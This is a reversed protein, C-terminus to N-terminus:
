SGGAGAGPASTTPIPDTTALAIRAVPVLTVGTEKAKAPNTQDLGVVQADALKLFTVDGLKKEGKYVGTVHRGDELYVTVRPQDSPEVSNEHFAPAGTEGPQTGTEVKPADSKEDTMPEGKQGTPRRETIVTRAAGVAAASAAAGVLLALIAAIVGALDGLSERLAGVVGTQDPPHLIQRLLTRTDDSIRGPGGLVVGGLVEGKQARLNNELAPDAELYEPVVVLSVGGLKPHDRAMHAALAVGVAVDPLDRKEMGRSRWPAAPDKSAAFVVFKEVTDRSTLKLRLDRPLVDENETLTHLGPPTKPHLRYCNPNITKVIAHHTKSVGWQKILHKVVGKSPTFLLPADEWIACRAAALM